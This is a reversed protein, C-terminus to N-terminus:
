QRRKMAGHAAMAETYISELRLNLKRIDYNAEVHKRGARGWERWHQPREIMYLLMEALDRTSREPVLFGSRGAVMGEPLGDHDTSLVPVGCAQAEQLVLGQGEVDGDEATVSPVMFLHAQAMKERVLEPSGAGCFIVAEQVGLQLAV